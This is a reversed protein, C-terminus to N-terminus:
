IPVYNAPNTRYGTGYGGSWVEIHLHYGGNQGYVNGTNGVAGIQQGKSVQTGVPLSTPSQMHAYLTYYIVGNTTGHNVVTMNGWSMNGATSGNWSQVTQIVGDQVAYIPTGSAAALDTGGHGANGYNQSIYYSGSPLPCINDALTFETGGGPTPDPPTVPEQETSLHTQGDLVVAYATEGNYDISVWYFGDPYEGLEAIVKWQTGEGLYGMATNVDGPTSFVEAHSSDVILYIVDEEGPDPVPPMEEEKVLLPIYQNVFNTNLKVVSGFIDPNLSKIKDVTIGCNDALHKLAANWDNAPYGKITVYVPPYNHEINYRLANWDNIQGGSCDIVSYYWPNSEIPQEPLTIQSYPINLRRAIEAVDKYWDAATRPNITATVNYSSMSQRMEDWTAM